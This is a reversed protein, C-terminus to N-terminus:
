SKKQAKKIIFDISNNFSLKIIERKLIKLEETFWYNINTISNKKVKRSLYDYASLISQCIADYWM